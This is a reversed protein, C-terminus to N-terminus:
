GRSPGNPPLHPALLAQGTRTVGAPAAEGRAVARLAALLAAPETTKALCALAGSDRAQAQVPAADFATLVVVRVGPAETRIRRTAELGDLLPMSVDMVVLDPGLKRALSVAELGDGAEGVIEFDGQAALLRAVERRFLAHDDVLLVRFPPM